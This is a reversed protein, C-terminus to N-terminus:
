GKNSLNGLFLWNAKDKFIGFVLRMLNRTVIIATFMSVLIGIALTVAFGQVFGTGIWILLVCSILTTINSDRISTWARVFAEETASKLSKGSRLEEKLREFVLVNADVAMGISLIFGAIGSLTLTVGITKFIALSITAYILLSVVSIIGPLRYYLIMFLIVLLLGLLGAKFSTALSDAGLSADVKQQSILEIPVPLAGSNLRQALLKAEDWNFGGTIVASGDLIPENVRPTSIAEGDLFIAVPKDVNRKTIDAFLKGGQDNFTLSVQIEGIQSDQVVEARKLLSGDLGTIKWEGAPPVIDSISKIRVFIKAMEYEMPIEEGTKIALHFGFETEIVDSITNMALDWVANEFEPVMEGKKFFELDGGREKGGPETTYQSVLDIFNNQNIQNKLEVIKEKAASKTYTSDCQEAGQYCILLHSARVTKEGARESLKKLLNLGDVTAIIDSVNGVKATKAWDYIEFNSDQTIFGMKGMEKKSVEDESYQGVAEEFSMKYLSNKAEKIKKDALRNYEDLEKQEMATLERPPDNNEEKFELVPTEGIMKIADTVNTVGPLEVIVRYEDGFRTTQVLPEGVGLGGRVRREIVDRVGEMSSSRGDPAIKTVDAKYVLHVGGQLDLGLNFGHEPLLPLGLNIKENVWKFGVNIYNPLVICLGVIGLVAIGFVRWRVQSKTLTKILVKKHAM